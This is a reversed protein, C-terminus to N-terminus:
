SYYVLTGVSNFIVDMICCDTIYFRLSDINDTKSKGSDVNNTKSKFEYNLISFKTNDSLFFRAGIRVGSIILITLIWNIIIVSRPVIEVNIGRDRVIDSQVFFGVLGWILAYLSVAQVLSWLARLDIYRIVSKYLGLNAFIPIGIIPAVLILRITDDKPFYWHELRISYSIWLIAIMLISDLFIM